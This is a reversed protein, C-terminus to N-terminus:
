TTSRVVAPRNWRASSLRDLGCPQRRPFAGKLLLSYTECALLACDGPELPSAASIAFPLRKGAAAGYTITDWEAGLLDYILKVHPSMSRAIHAETVDSANLTAPILHPHRM